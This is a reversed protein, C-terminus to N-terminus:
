HPPKLVEKLFKKRFHLKVLAHRAINRTIVLIHLRLRPDLTETNVFTSEIRFSLTVQVYLVLHIKHSLITRKADENNM